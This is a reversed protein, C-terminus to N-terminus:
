GGVKEDVVAVALAEAPGPQVRVPAPPAAALQLLRVCPRGALDDEGAATLPADLAAVSVVTVLTALPRATELRAVTVGRRGQKM